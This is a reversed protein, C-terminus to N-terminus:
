KKRIFNRGRVIWYNKRVESLTNGNFYDDNHLLTVLKTNFNLKGNSLRGMSRYLENEYNKM